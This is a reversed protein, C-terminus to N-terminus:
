HCTSPSNGRLLTPLQPRPPLRTLRNGRDSACEPLVFPRHMMHQCRIAADATWRAATRTDRQALRVAFRNGSAKSSPPRKSLDCARDTTRWRRNTALNMPISTSAVISCHLGIRSRPAARAARFRAVQRLMRSQPTDDRPTELRPPRRLLDRRPQHHGIRIIRRHPDRSSVGRCSDRHELLRPTSSSPAPIACRRRRCGIRRLRRSAAVGRGLLMGSITTWRQGDPRPALGHQASGNPFAVRRAPAFLVCM